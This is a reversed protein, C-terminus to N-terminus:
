RRAGQRNEFAIEIHRAADDMDREGHPMGGVVTAGDYGAVFM